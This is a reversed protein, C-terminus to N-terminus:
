DPPPRPKSCPTSATLGCTCSNGGDFRRESWQKLKSVFNPTVSRAADGFLVKPTDGMECNGIGKLYLWPIFEEVRKTRRLYLETQM